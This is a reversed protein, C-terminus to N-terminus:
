SGPQAPASATQLEFTGAAVWPNACAIPGNACSGPSLQDDAASALALYAQARPHFSREAMSLESSSKGTLPAADFTGRFLDSPFYPRNFRLICSPASLKALVRGPNCSRGPNPCWFHCAVYLDWLVVCVGVMLLPFPLRGFYTDTFISRGAWRHLFCSGTLRRHHLPRHASPTCCRRDRSRFRAAPPLTFLPPETLV